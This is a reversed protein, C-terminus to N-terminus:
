SQLVEPSERGSSLMRRAIHLADAEADAFVLPVGLTATLGKLAKRLTLPLSASSGIVIAGACLRSIDGRLSKLMEARLKKEQPAADALDILTPMRESVLVFREGKAILEILQRRDAEEDHPHDSSHDRLWVIPHTAIDIKM